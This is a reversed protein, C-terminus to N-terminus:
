SFEGEVWDLPYDTDPTFKGADNTIYAGCTMNRSACARAYTEAYESHRFPTFIEAESEDCYDLTWGASYEGTSFERRHYVWRCPRREQKTHDIVKDAYESLTYFAGYEDCIEVDRHLDLFALLGKFTSFAEHKQFLPLWGCSLKNLHIAYGLDPEDVLEYEGAFHTKVFDRDKSLLYFNTGM